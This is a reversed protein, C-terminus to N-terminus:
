VLLVSQQRTVIKLVTRFLSSHLKVCWHTCVCVHDSMHRLLLPIALTFKCCLQRSNCNSGMSLFQIFYRTQTPSVWKHSDAHRLIIYCAASFVSSMNGCIQLWAWLMPNLLVRKYIYFWKWSSQINGKIMAPKSKWPGLLANIHLCGSKTSNTRQLRTPPRLIAQSINGVSM